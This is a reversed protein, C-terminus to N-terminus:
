EESGSTVFEHILLETYMLTMSKLQEMHIERAERPLTALAFGMIKMYTMTALTMLDEVFGDGREEGHKDMLYADIMDFVSNYAEDTLVSVAKSQESIPEALEACKEQDLLVELFEEPKMGKLEKKLKEVGFDVIKDM